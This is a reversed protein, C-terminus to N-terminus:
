FTRLLFLLLVASLILFLLLFPLVASKGLLIFANIVEPLSIYLVLTRNIKCFEERQRKVAIVREMEEGPMILM